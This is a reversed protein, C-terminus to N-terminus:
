LLDVVCRYTDLAQYMFAQDPYQLHNKKKPDHLLRIKIPLSDTIYHTEESIREIATIKDSFMKKRKDDLYLHHTPVQYVDDTTRTQFSVWDLQNLTTKQGRMMRSPVIVFIYRHQNLGSYAKAAYVAWSNENKILELAIDGYYEVFAGYVNEKSAM